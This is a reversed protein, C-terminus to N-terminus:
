QQFPITELKGGEAECALCINSDEDFPGVMGTLIQAYEDLILVSKPPVLSIFSYLKHSTSEILFLLLNSQLSLSLSFFLLKGVVQLQISVILTRAKQFDIRCLHIGDDKELVDYIKLQPPLNSVDLSIRNSTRQYPFHQANVLSSNRADIIYWPQGTANSSKYWFLLKVSDGPPISFTCLLSVNTGKAATYRIM